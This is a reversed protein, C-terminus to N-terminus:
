CVVLIFYIRFDDFNFKLQLMIVLRFCHFYHNAKVQFNQNRYLKQFGLPLRIQTQYYFLNFLIKFQQPVTVICLPRLLTSLKLHRKLRPSTCNRSPFSVCKANYTTLHQQGFAMEFHTCLRILEFHKVLRIEKTVM